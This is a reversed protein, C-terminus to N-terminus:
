SQKVTAYDKTPSADRLCRVSLFGVFCFLVSYFCLHMCLSKTGKFKQVSARRMNKPQHTPKNPLHNSTDTSMRKLETWSKAVTHVTAQWVGRDLCSYQLPNGNGEGPSRGSGPISSPDGANCVSAKGELGGPFGFVLELM